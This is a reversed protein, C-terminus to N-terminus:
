KSSGTDAQQLGVIRAALAAYRKVVGPLPAPLNHLPFLEERKAESPASGRNLSHRTKFSTTYIDRRTCLHAADSPSLALSSGAVVAPCCVSNVSHLKDM